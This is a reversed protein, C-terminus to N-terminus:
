SQNRCSVLEYRGFGRQVGGLWNEYWAMDLAAVPYSYNSFYYVVFHMEKVSVIEVLGSYFCRYAGEDLCARAILKVWVICNPNLASGDRILRM